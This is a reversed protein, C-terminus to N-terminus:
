SRFFTPGAHVGQQNEWERKPNLLLRRPPPLTRNTKRFWARRQGKGFGGRPSDILGTPWTTDAHSFQALTKEKGSKRSREGEEQTQRAVRRALINGDLYLLYRCSPLLTLVKEWGPSPLIHRLSLAYPDRKGRSSLHSTSTFRAFYVNTRSFVLYFTLIFARSAREEDKNPSYLTLLMYPNKKMTHPLPWRLLFTFIEGCTILVFKVHYYSRAYKHNLVLSWFLFSPPFTAFPHSLKNDTEYCTLDYAFWLQRLKM